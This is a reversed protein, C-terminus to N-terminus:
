KALFCKLILSGYVGLEGLNNSIWVTCSNRTQEPHAMCGMLKM